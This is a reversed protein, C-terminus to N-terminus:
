LRAREREAKRIKKRDKKAKAAEAVARNAVKRAADKPVLPNADHAILGPQTSM